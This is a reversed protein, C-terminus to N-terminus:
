RKGRRVYRPVARKPARMSHNNMMPMVEFHNSLLVRSNICLELSMQRVPTHGSVTSILIRPDRDHRQKMVCVILMSM